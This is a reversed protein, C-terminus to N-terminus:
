YLPKNLFQIDVMPNRFLLNKRQKPGPQRFQRNEVDCDSEEDVVTYIEGRAHVPFRWCIITEMHQWPQNRAHRRTQLCGMYPYYLNQEKNERYICKLTGHLLNKAKERSGPPNIPLEPLSTPVMEM